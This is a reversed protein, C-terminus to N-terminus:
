VGYHFYPKKAIKLLIDNGNELYFKYGLYSSGAASTLSGAASTLSGAASTLSDKCLAAPTLSDKCLAAPTLSDKAYRLVPIDKLM